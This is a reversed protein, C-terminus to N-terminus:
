DAALDVLDPAKFTYVGSADDVKKVDSYAQFYLVGSNHLKSLLPPVLIMCM